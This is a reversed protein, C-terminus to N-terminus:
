GPEIPTHEDPELHRYRTFAPLTLAILGAGIAASLGGSVASASPTWASAVVGARFNGLQPFAAGVVNETSSVRGRMVDPTALQVIATRFVVALVDAAGGIALLALTAPLSHVLGFGVLAAGWISGAVLMARGPRAVNKVPGSLTSGLLGGIAISTSLLGLTRPSGGFREANIAPFLSFPMALLTASLDALLAGRLAPNEVIFRMGAGVSSLSRRVPEGEPYMPPLRFVGYFAASFTVADVLYCFKLGGAATLVGALAPGGILALYSGVMTLASAATILDRSLLRPIFSRRAPAGIAGIAGQLGVFLYLLWLARSGAFGQMALGISVLSSLTTTILVLRRRDTSDILVGGVLGVAIAPVANSLGVLGVAASSHTITFVQLAVAFNTLQGGVSSLVTGSWLRRFDPSSRLPRLDVLLSPM